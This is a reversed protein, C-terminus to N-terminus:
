LCDGDSLPEPIPCGFADLRDNIWKTASVPVGDVEQVPIDDFCLFTRMM